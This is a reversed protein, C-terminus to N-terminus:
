SFLKFKFVLQNNIELQSIAIEANQNDVFLMTDNAYQVVRSYKPLKQNLDTTYLNFILLRLIIFQPGDQFLNIWYSKSNNLVTKQQTNSM